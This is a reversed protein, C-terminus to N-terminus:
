PDEPEGDYLLIGRRGAEYAELDEEWGRELDTVAQGDELKTRIVPDGTLIDIPLHREEYEYPPPLWRFSKRHVRLVAQLFALGFRYPRFIEPDTIHLQFGRCRRGAWKDFTPEFEVTRLVLGQLASADMRDRVADPDLYPAGVLQFPLTTGRGESLNTGELLVMGPYLLATGVDAYQAVPFDVAAQHRAM